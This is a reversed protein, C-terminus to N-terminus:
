PTPMGTNTESEVAPRLLEACSQLGALFIGVPMPLLPIWLPLEWATETLWKERWAEEFHTWGAWALFFLFLISGIEAASDLFLRARAPANEALLRIRVHGRTMLIHPSSLFVAATAAYIVFETQWVTSGNFAYRIVVMQGVVLVAAVLLAAAIWFFVRSLFSITHVFGRAIAIPWPAM